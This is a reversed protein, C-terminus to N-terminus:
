KTELYKINTPFTVYFTTGEKLSSTVTITGNNQEVFEKCVVLGLGTGTENSTGKTSYSHELKFLKEQNEPSIGVGSDTVSITTDSISQSAAITVKGNPETFKIANSILNRMVTSMTNYDAEIHINNPTENILEINKPTAQLQLVSTVDHTLSNINIKQPNITIKGTQSRSWHLLNDILSLLKTSSGHIIEGIEDRKAQDMSASDTALVETLGVLATFPSRLDHAIISFLKDKTQVLKKLESESLALKDNALNLTTNKRRIVIYSYVSGIAIVLIFM